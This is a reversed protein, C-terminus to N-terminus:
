KRKSRRKYDGNVRWGNETKMFHYEGSLDIRSGAEFRTLDPEFASKKKSSSKVYFNSWYGDILDYAKWSEKEIVIIADFELTYYKAGSIEAEYGDTKTFNELRIRGNSESNVQNEFTASAKAIREDTENIQPSNTNNGSSSPSESLNSELFPKFILYIVGVSDAKTGAARIEPNLLKSKLKLESSSISIIEFLSTDISYGRSLLSTDKLQQFTHLTKEDNGIWFIHDTDFNKTRIKLCSDELFEWTLSKIDPMYSKVMEVNKESAVINISDLIWKRTIKKNASESCGIFIPM